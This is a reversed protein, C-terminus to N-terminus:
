VTSIVTFHTLMYFLSSNLWFFWISQQSTRLINATGSVTQHVLVSLYRWHEMCSTFVRTIAKKATHFLCFQDRITSRTNALHYVSIHANSGTGKSILFPLFSGERDPVPCFNPSKQQTEPGEKSEVMLNTILGRCQAWTFQVSCSSGTSYVGPKWRTPFLHKTQSCQLLVKHRWQLPAQAIVFIFSNWTQQKQLATATPTSFDM